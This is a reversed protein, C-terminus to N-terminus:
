DDDSKVLRLHPRRRSPGEPRQAPPPIFDAAPPESLGPAPEPAHPAAAPEACRTLVQADIVFRQPPPAPTAPCALAGIARSVRGQGDRLPLLLMRARTGPPTGRRVPRLTLEAICPTDFMEQLVAGFNARSPPAILASLPMGRVEMGMLANLNQGAVRLRAHTPAIRELLFSDQLARGFGRPDVDSRMPVAGGAADHLADWYARLSSISSAVSAKGGVPKRGFSLLRGGFGSHVTM